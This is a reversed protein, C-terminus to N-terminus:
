AAPVDLTQGTLAHFDEVLQGVNVGAQFQATGLHEPWIAVWAEEVQHKWYADTFGTERAWTVFRVDDTTDGLYGGAVVSHGGVAPSGPVYDWPQSAAFQQENAELVVVGTWVVGFISLAAKVEELNTPDLRAFAVAKVGDPGGSHVLYELCTQIDMGGDQAPFGPNQTKYLEVVQDLTPYTENGALHSLVRRENAWTVAVCDGHQDNGLMQWGPLQSIWDESVPHPPIATDQSWISGFKIAPANKPARRGLKYSM